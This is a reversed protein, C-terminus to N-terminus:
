PTRVEAPLRMEFRAGGQPSREVSVTGGHAKAVGSVIALGLGAGGGDRSRADDLRTFREFVRSRDEEEIGAGDDDVRVVIYSGEDFCSLAMSHSAHRRANDALNRVARALLLPDGDLRAAKVGRTDVDIGGISRQRAAEALVVDDLDVTHHRVRVEDIRALDLLSEVLQTLRSSEEDVVSALTGLDTSDPHTLAIQAHQTLSAIPSRLEHSADSIFRRQERQASDLRELMTNMTEALRSIEDGSGGGSVRLSLADSEIAEVDRRIREVPRLARGVVTWVLAAVVASVLPVAAVLLVGVAGELIEIDDIEHAVVVLYSVGDVTAEVSAVLMPEGEQEGRAAPAGPNRPELPIADLPSDHESSAILVGERFIQVEADSLEPPVVNGSNEFQESIIQAQEVLAEGEAAILRSGLLTVFAFAGIATTILIILTSSATIRLRISPRWRAGAEAVM